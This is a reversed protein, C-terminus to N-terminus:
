FDMNPFFYITNEELDSWVIYRHHVYGIYHNSFRINGDVGKTLEVLPSPM